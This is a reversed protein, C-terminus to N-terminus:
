VLLAGAAMNNPFQPYRPRLLATESESRVLSLRKLDLRAHYRSVLVEMLEPELATVKTPTECIAWCLIMHVSDICTMVLVTGALVFFVVFDGESARAGGVELIALIASPLFSVKFPFGIWWSLLLLALIGDAYTLIYYIFTRFYIDVSIKDMGHDFMTEAVFKRSKLYSTGYIATPVHFVDLVCKPNADPGCDPFCVQVLALVWLHLEFARRVLSFSSRAATGVCWFMSDRVVPRHTPQLDLEGPLARSPQRSLSTILSGTITAPSMFSAFYIVRSLWIQLLDRSFAATFLFNLLMWSLLVWKGSIRASQIVVIGTCWALLYVNIVLAYSLYVVGLHTRHRWCIRGASQIFQASLQIHTWARVYYLALFLFTGLAMCHTLGFSSWSRWPVASYFLFGLVGVSFGHLMAETRFYLLFISAFTALFSISFAWPGVRLLGRLVPWARFSGDTGSWAWLIAAVTLLFQLVMLLLAMGDPLDRIMRRQSRYQRKSRLALEELFRRAIDRGSSLDIDAIM